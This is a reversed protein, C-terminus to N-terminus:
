FRKNAYAFTWLIPEEPIYTILPKDIGALQGLQSLVGPMNLGSAVIANKHIAIWKGSHSERIKDLNKNLWDLNDVQESSSKTSRIIAAKETPVFTDAGIQWYRLVLSGEESVYWDIKLFAFLDHPGKSTGPVKFVLRATLKDATRLTYTDAHHFPDVIPDAGEFTV